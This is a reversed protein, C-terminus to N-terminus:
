PEKPPAIGLSCHGSNGVRSADQVGLDASGDGIWKEDGLMGFDMRVLCYWGCEEKSHYGCGERWESM